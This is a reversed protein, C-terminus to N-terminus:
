EGASGRLQAAWADFDGISGEEIRGPTAERVAAFHDSDAATNSVM